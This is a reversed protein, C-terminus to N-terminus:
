QGQRYCPDSLRELVEQFGQATQAQQAEQHELHQHEQVLQAERPYQYCHALLDELYEQDVQIAQVLQHDPFLQILPYLLTM